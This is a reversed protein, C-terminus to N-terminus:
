TKQPSTAVTFKTTALTKTKAGALLYLRAQCGAAGGTWKQSSLQADRNGPPLDWSYYSYVLFRPDGVKGGQYCAFEVRPPNDPDNQSTTYTFTITDGYSILGDNDADTVLVPQLSSTAGAVPSALALVAFVILALLKM